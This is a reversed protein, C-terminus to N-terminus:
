AHESHNANRSDRHAAQPWILADLDSRSPFRRRNFRKLGIDPYRASVRLRAAFAPCTAAFQHCDAAKQPKAARRNTRFITGISISLPHLALL